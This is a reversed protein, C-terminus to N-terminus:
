TEHLSNESQYTFVETLVGRAGRGWLADICDLSVPLLNAFAELRNVLSGELSDLVKKSLILYSEGQKNQVEIINSFAQKMQLYPVEICSRGGVELKDRLQSYTAESLVEKCLLAFGEGLTMVEYTHIISKDGNNEIQFVVPDWRFYQCFREFFGPHSRPSEFAYAIRNKRDFLISEPGELFVGVEEYESIDIVSYPPDRELYHKFIDPLIDPRQRSDFIPYQIIEGNIHFSIWHNAPNWSTSFSSSNDDFVTVKIGVTSLAEALLDCEELVNQFTIQPSSSSLPLRASITEQVRAQAPRIMLVESAIHM